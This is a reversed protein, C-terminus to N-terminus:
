KRSASIGNPLPLLQIRTPFKIQTIRPTIYHVEGLGAIISSWGIKVKKIGIPARDIQGMIPCRFQWKVWARIAIVTKFWDARAERLVIHRPITARKFQGLGIGTFPEPKFEIAHEAVAVYEYVPPKDSMMIIPIIAKTVINGVNCM